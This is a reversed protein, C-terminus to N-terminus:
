YHKCKFNYLNSITLYTCSYMNFNFTITKPDGNEDRITGSLKKSNVDYNLNSINASLFYDGNPKEIESPLSYIGNSPINNIKILYDKGDRKIIINQSTTSETTQVVQFRELNMGFSIMLLFILGFLILLNKDQITM